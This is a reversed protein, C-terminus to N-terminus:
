LRSTIPVTAVRLSDHRTNSGIIVPFYQSGLLQAFYRASPYYVAFVDDFRALEELAVCRGVHLPGYAMAAMRSLLGAGIDHAVDLRDGSCYKVLTYVVLADRNVEHLARLRSAHDRWPQVEPATAFQASPVLPAIRSKGTLMDRLRIRLMVQPILASAQLNRRMGHFYSDAFVLRAASYSSRSRSAEFDARSPYQFLLIGDWRRDALQQTAATFAAQGAYVLRANSGALVLQQFTRVSDLLKSGGHLRFFVLVHLADPSHLCRQRDGAARRIRLYRWQQWLMASLLLALLVASAELM